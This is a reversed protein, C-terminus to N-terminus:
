DKYEVGFVEKEIQKWQHHSAETGGERQRAPMLFLLVDGGALVFTIILYFMGDNQQSVKSRRNNASTECLLMVVHVNSDSTDEETQSGRQQGALIDHFDRGGPGHLDLVFIALHPHEAKFFRGAGFHCHVRM